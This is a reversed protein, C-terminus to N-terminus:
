SGLRYRGRRCSGIFSIMRRAKLTALDRRATKESVGWHRRLDAARVDLGSGLADVYWRQRQNLPMGRPSRVQRVERDSDRDDDRDNKRDHEAGALDTSLDHAGRDYERRRRDSSRAEPSELHALLRDLSTQVALVRAALAEAHRDAAIMLSEFVADSERLLAILHGGRPGHAGTIWQKVTRESAGTWRMLTKAARHSSGLEAQLARSVIAPFSEQASDRDNRGPFLNGKKPFM